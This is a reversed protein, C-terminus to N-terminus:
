VRVVQSHLTSIGFVLVGVPFCPISLWHTVALYALKRYLEAHHQVKATTDTVHLVRAVTYEHQVASSPM